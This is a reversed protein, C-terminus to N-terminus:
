LNLSFAGVVVLVLSGDPPENRCGGTWALLKLVKNSSELKVKKVSGEASPGDSNYVAGLHFQQDVSRCKSRLRRSSYSM